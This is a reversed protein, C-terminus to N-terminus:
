PSLLRLVGRRIAVQQGAWEVGSCRATSALTPKSGGRPKGAPCCDDRKLEGGDIEVANTFVRGMRQVACPGGIM